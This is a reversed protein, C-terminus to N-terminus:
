VFAFHILTAIYKVPSTTKHEKLLITSVYSHDTKNIDSIVDRFM